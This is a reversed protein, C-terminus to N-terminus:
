TLFHHTQKQEKTSVVDNIFIKPLPHLILVGSQQQLEIYQSALAESGYMINTEHQDIKGMKNYLGNYWYFTGVMDKQNHNFSYSLHSRIKVDVTVRNCVIETQSWNQRPQNWVIISDSHRRSHDVLTSGPPHNISPCQYISKSVPVCNEHLVDM